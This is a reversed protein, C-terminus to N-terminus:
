TKAKKREGFADLEGRSAIRDTSGVRIYVGHDRYNHPPNEGVDVSVVVLEREEYPVNTVRYAPRPDIWTYIIDQIVQKTKIAKEKELGKIVATDDVGLFIKGGSTNSFACVTRLFQEKSNENLIDLKFEVNEGEGQNILLEINEEEFEVEIEPDFHWGLNYYRYDLLDQPDSRDFLVFYFEKPTDILPVEFTRRSSFDLDGAEPKSNQFDLFFKGLPEKIRKSTETIVVFNKKSMKLEKIRARYDPLFFLISWESMFDYERGLWYILSANFSPFVPLNPVFPFPRNRIRHYISNLENVPRLKFLYVKTPWSLMNLKPYSRRERLLKREWESLPSYGGLKKLIEQSRTEDNIERFCGEPFNIDLTRHKLSFADGFSEISKEFEEITFCDSVLLLEGYDLTQPTLKEGTSTLGLFIAQVPCLKDEHKFFLGKFLVESYQEKRTRFKNLLEEKLANM